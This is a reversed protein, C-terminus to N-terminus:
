RLLRKSFGKIMQVTTSYPVQLGSFYINESKIDKNGIFKNGSIIARVNRNLSLAAGFYARGGEVM